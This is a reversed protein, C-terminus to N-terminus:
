KENMGSLVLNGFYNKIKNIFIGRQIRERNRGIKYIRKQKIEKMRMNM